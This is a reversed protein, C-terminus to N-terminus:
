VNLYFWFKRYTNNSFKMENFKSNNSDNKENSNESNLTTKEEKLKQVTLFFPLILLANFSICFVHVNKLFFFFSFLIFLLYDLSVKLLIEM